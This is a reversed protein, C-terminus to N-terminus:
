KNVVKPSRELDRYIVIKENRKKVFYHVFKGLTKGNSFYYELIQKSEENKNEKCWTKIVKGTISNGEYQLTSSWPTNLYFVRFTLGGFTELMYDVYDEITSERWNIGYKEANDYDYYSLQFRFSENNEDYVLPNLLYSGDTTFILKDINSILKKHISLNIKTKPMDQYIGNLYKQIRESDQSMSDKFVKMKSDEYHSKSYIVSSQLEYPEYPFNNKLQELTTIKM